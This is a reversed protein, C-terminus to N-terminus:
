PRSAAEPARILFDRLLPGIVGPQEEQPFHGCRPVRKLEAHPITRALREAHRHHILPDREGHIVLTPCQIEAYRAAMEDLEPGYLQRLTRFFAGRGGPDRLHRCCADTRLSTVSGWGGRVAELGLRTFLAPTYGGVLPVLPLFALRGVPPLGERFAVSNLLALGRVREPAHVTAALATGGGLSNGVLLADEWGLEDLFQVVRRGISPLSYDVAAPKDSEGHGPLDVGVVRFEDRLHPVVPEWTRHDFGIAHILLVRPGTFGWQIYHLRTERLDEAAGPRSRVTNLASMRGGINGRM